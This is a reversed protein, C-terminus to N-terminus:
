PFKRGTQRMQQSNLLAIILAVPILGTASFGPGVGDGLIPNVQALPYLPRYWRVPGVYRAPRTYIVM